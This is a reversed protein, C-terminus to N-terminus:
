RIVMDAKVLNVRLMISRAANEYEEGLNMSQDFAQSRENQRKTYLIKDHSDIRATIKKKQGILQVLDEEVTEVDTNFAQAMSRLDISSYPLCYQVMAKERIHQIISDIHPSLYMDLKWTPKLTELLTFCAAYKSSQFLEMIERVQPELELFARFQTNTNLLDQLARRDMSALACLGGYIAVDNASLVQNIVASAEITVQQTLLQGVSTFANTDGTFLTSIAQYCRLTSMTNAKDPLQPIVEARAVYSALHHHQDSEMHVKIMNFCLDLMNKSTTCFERTKTFNRSAETLNGVDYYYDGLKTQAVRISEKVMNSRYTKLERELQALRTKNNDSTTEMWQRNLEMAPQQRQSLALNLKELCAEYLEISHTEQTIYQLAFQLAEVAISPCSDAIFFARNLRTRGQYNNIYQEFDFNIGEEMM